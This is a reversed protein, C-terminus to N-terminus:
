QQADAGNGPRLPPESACFIFVTRPFGRGRFFAQLKQASIIGPQSRIGPADVEKRGAGDLAKGSM